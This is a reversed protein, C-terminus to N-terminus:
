YMLTKMDLIGPLHVKFETLSIKEMYESMDLRILSDESDFLYKALQKALETKGVGSNGILIGSFIPRNPDKMGVRGRQISRVIKAVADDQGIVEIADRMKSLKKNENESVKHVPIGTIMSVVSAVDEETVLQRNKDSDEEM